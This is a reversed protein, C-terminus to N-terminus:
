NKAKNSSGLFVHLLVVPYNVISNNSEIKPKGTFCICLNLENYIWMWTGYFIVSIGAKLAISQRKCLNIDFLM